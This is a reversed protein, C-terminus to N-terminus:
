ALCTYSELLKGSGHTQWGEGTQEMAEPCLGINRNDGQLHLAIRFSAWDESPTQGPCLVETQM